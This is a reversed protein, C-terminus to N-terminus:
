PQPPASSEGSSTYRRRSAGYRHSKGCIAAMMWWPPAPVVASASRAPTGLATTAKPTSWGYWPRRMWSSPAPGAGILRLLSMTLRRADDDGDVLGPDTIGASRDLVTTTTTMNLSTEM